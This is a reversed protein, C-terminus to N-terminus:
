KLTATRGLFSGQSCGASTIRKKYSFFGLPGQNQNLKIRSWERSYPVGREGKGPVVAKLAQEIKICKETAALPCDSGSLDTTTFYILNSGNVIPSTFPATSGPPHQACVKSILGDTDTEVDSFYFNNVGEVFKYGGAQSALTVTADGINGYGEDTCGKSTGAFTYTSGVLANITQSKTVIASCIDVLNQYDGSGEGVSVPTLSYDNGFGEDQPLNVKGCSALVLLTIVSFYKM